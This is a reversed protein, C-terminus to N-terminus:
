ILYIYIYIPNQKKECGFFFFSPFLFFIFLFSFSFFNSVLIPSKSDTGLSFFSPFRLLTGLDYCFFVFRTCLDRFFDRTVNQATSDHCLNGGIFDIFNPPTVWAIYRPHSFFCFGYIYIM